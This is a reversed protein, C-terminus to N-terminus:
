NRKGLGVISMVNANGNCSRIKHRNPTTKKASSTILHFAEKRCYVIKVRLMLLVLSFFAPCSFFFCSCAKQAEEKRTTREKPHNKKYKTHVFEDLMESEQVIKM